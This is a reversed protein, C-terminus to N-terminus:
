LSHSRSGPRGKADVAEVNCAQRSDPDTVFKGGTSVVLPQEVVIEFTTLAMVGGLALPM